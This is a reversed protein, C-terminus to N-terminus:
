GLREALAHAAQQAGLGTVLQANGPAGVAFRDERAGVVGCSSLSPNRLFGESEVGPVRRPNAHGKPCGEM